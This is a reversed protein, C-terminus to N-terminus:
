VAAATQCQDKWDAMGSFRGGPFQGECRTILPGPDGPISSITIPGAM